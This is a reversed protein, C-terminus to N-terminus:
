HGGSARIEMIPMLLSLAAVCVLVGLLVVVVGEFVTFARQLARPLEKDLYDSAKMLARDLSGTKEGVAILRQILPPFGDARAFSEHLSEGTAVRQRAEAVQRALVHNGVAGELLEMLRLLDLGSAFLLSFNKAFRSLALKHVFGGLVPLKLVFWDTRYRGAESRRLMKWGVICGVVAVVVLWGWHGIWDGVGLVTVTLTPLEFDVAEFISQFRPIVFLGLLFFLGLVGVLLM